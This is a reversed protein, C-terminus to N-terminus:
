EKEDPKEGFLILDVLECIIHGIVLHAEQIRPTSKSDTWLCLESFEGIKSGPAGALGIRYLSMEGALKLAKIVNPSNGSTSIGLAIDGKKALAKLQVTFIEDFGRDNSISTLISTDTTLAISALPKREMVMRNVFEASLHQAQSASGGNGFVLLKNGAKIASAIKQSALVIKELNEKLSEEILKQSAKARESIESKLSM